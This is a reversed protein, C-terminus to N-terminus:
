DPPVPSRSPRHSSKWAAVADFLHHRAVKKGKGKDVANRYGDAAAAIAELAQIREAVPASQRAILERSAELQVEMARVATPVEETDGEEEVGIARRVQRVIAIVLVDSIRIASGHGGMAVDIRARVADNGTM